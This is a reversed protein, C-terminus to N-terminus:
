IAVSLVGSSQYATWASGGPNNLTFVRFSTRHYAEENGGETSTVVDTVTAVTAGAGVFPFVYTTSGYSDDGVIGVPADAERRQDSIEVVRGAACSVNTSFRVIPVGAATTGVRVPTLPTVTCGNSTAAQAPVTVLTLPLVVAAAAAGGIVLTRVKALKTTPMKNRGGPSFRPIEPSRQKTSISM